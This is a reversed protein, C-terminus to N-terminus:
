NKMNFTEKNLLDLQLTAGWRGIYMGWISAWGHQLQPILIPNPFMFALIMSSTLASISAWYSRSKVFNTSTIPASNSLIFIAIRSYISFLLHLAVLISGNWCTGSILSPSSAELSSQSSSFSLSFMPPSPEKLLSSSISLPSFVGSSNKDGMKFILFLTQPLQM